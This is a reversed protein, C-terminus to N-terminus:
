QAPRTGLEQPSRIYWPKLQGAWLGPSAGSSPGRLLPLDPGPRCGLRPAPCPQLCHTALPGDPSRPEVQLLLVQRHGGFLTLRPMPGLGPLSRGELCLSAQSVPGTGRPPRPPQRRDQLPVSCPASRQSSSPSPCWRPLPLSCLACLENDTPPLTSPESPLQM